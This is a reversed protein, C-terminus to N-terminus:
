SLANIADVAPNLGWSFFDPLQHTAVYTQLCVHGGGIPAILTM